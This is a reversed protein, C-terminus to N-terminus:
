RICVMERIRDAQFRQTTDMYGEPIREYDVTWTVSPKPNARIEVAINGEEGVRFGFQEIQGNLPRPAVSPCM